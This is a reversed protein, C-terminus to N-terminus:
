SAGGNRNNRSLLALLVMNEDPPYVLITYTYPARSNSRTRSVYSHGVLYRLSWFVSTESLGSVRAIEPMSVAKGDYFTALVLHVMRHQLRMITSENQKIGSYNCSVIIDHKM